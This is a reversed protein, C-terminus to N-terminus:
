ELVDPEFNAVVEVESERYSERVSKVKIMYIPQNRLNCIYIAQASALETDDYRGPLVKFRGGAERRALLFFVEDKNTM